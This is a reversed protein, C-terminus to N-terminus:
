RRLSCGGAATTAEGGQSSNDGGDSTNDGGSNPDTVSGQAAVTVQIDTTEACGSSCDCTVLTTSCVEEFGTPPPDVPGVSSGGTFANNLPQVCIEYTEGDILGSISWDGCLTGESTCGGQSSDDFTTRSVYTGSIAEIADTLESGVRRAVVSAGRFPTVGDQSFVTGSVTCTDSLDGYLKLASVEDDRHLVGTPQGPVLAPFMLPLGQCDPHMSDNLCNTFGTESIVMAHDLGLFHGMEHAITSEAEDQSYIVGGCAGPCGTKTEGSIVCTGNFLAQGHRVTTREPNADTNLHTIGAFGLVSYKACSGLLDDTIEGDEDFVVPLRCTDVTTFFEPYCDTVLHDSSLGSVYFVDTYDSSDVDGDGPLTGGESLSINLGSLNNWLNAADSIMQRSATNDLGESSKLGGSAETYYSIAQPSEWLIPVGEISLELPGGAQLPTMLWFYFLFLAVWARPCFIM